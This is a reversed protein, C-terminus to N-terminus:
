LATNPSRTARSDWRRLGGPVSVAARAHRAAYFILVRPLHGPNKPGLTRDACRAGVAYPISCRNVKCNIKGSVAKVKIGPPSSAAVSRTPKLWKTEGSRARGTPGYKNDQALGVYIGFNKGSFNKGSVTIWWREPQSQLPDQVRDRQTLHPM